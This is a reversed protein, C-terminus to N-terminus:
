VGVEVAVRNCATEYEFSTLTQATYQANLTECCQWGSRHYICWVKKQKGSPQLCDSLESRYGWEAAIIERKQRFDNDNTSTM